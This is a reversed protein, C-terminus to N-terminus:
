YSWRQSNGKLCSKLLKVIINEGPINRGTKKGDKDIKTEEFIEKGDADKRKGLCLFIIDKNILRKFKVQSSKIEKHM